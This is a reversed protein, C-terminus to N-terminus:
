KTIMRTVERELQEIQSDLRKMQKLEDVMAQCKGADAETKADMWCKAVSQPFLHEQDDICDALCFKYTPEAVSHSVDRAVSGIAKNVWGTVDEMSTGLSALVSNLEREIAVIPEAEPGGKKGFLDGLGFPGSSTHTVEKGDKVITSSMQWLGELGM